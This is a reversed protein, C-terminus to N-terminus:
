FSIEEPINMENENELVGEVEAALRKGCHACYAYKMKLNKGCAPCKVVGMIDDIRREVAALRKRTGDIQVTMSAIEESDETGCKCMTYVAEGLEKYQGALLRKLAAHSIRLMSVRYNEDAKKIAAETIEKITGFIETMM